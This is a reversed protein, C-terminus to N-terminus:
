PGVGGRLYALPDVARGDFRLEFHVHPGTSWGTSGAYGLVDGQRVVEGATVAIRSLHAYRTQSGDGHDLFVVNGYSGDWRAEVVKGDRAAHVPTGLPVALDIGAHFHNGNVALARWGFPSSLRGHVPAAFSQEALRVQPLRVVAALLATDQMAALRAQPTGAPDPIHLVDGPELREDGLGNASRLADVGTGFRAALAFVTDGGGVVYVGDARALAAAAAVFACAAVLAPRWRWWAAPRGKTGPRVAPRSAVPM